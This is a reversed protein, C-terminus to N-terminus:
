ALEWADGWQEGVPSVVVSLVTYAKALRGQISKRFAQGGWYNRISSDRRSEPYYGPALGCDASAAGPDIAFVLTRRLHVATQERVGNRSLSHSSQQARKFEDAGHRLTVVITVGQSDFSDVEAGIGVTPHLTM